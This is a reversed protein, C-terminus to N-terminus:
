WHHETTHSSPSALRMKAQSKMLEGANILFKGLLTQMLELWNQVNVKGPGLLQQVSCAQVVIILQVSTMKCPFASTADMRKATSLRLKYFALPFRM